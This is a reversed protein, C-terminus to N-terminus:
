LGKLATALLMLVASAIGFWSSYAGILPIAWFEGVIAVVALILSIWWVIKKPPTLMM